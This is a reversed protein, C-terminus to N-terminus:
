PIALSNLLRNMAAKDDGDINPNGLGDLDGTLNFARDPYAVSLSNLRRNMQAKDDGDVDADGDVDGLPRLRQGVTATAVKGSTNGTYKVGITYSGSAGPNPTSTGMRGGVINYQNPGVTQITFDTVPGGNETFEVAYSEGPAAEQDLTVALVSHHRDATTTQTNQYVWDWDVAASIALTGPVPPWVPIDRQGDGDFDGARYQALNISSGIDSGNQGHGIAWSGPAPRLDLDYNTKTLWNCVVGANLLPKDLPPTFDLYNNHPWTGSASYGRGTITRVVGDFDTEIHDGVAFRDNPGDMYIRSATFSPVGFGEMGEMWAPGNIFQPDVYNSNTDQGSATKWDNFYCWNSGWAAVRAAAGPGHWYVNYDALLNRAADAGYFITPYGRYFIDNKFTYGTQGLVLMLLYSYACTCDTLSQDAAGGNFMPAGSGAVICNIFHLGTTESIMFCQGGLLLVTDRVEMNTVGYYTQINDPHGWMFHHHIYCNEVYVDSTDYSIILGDVDNRAIECKQVLVDQSNSGIAMGYGNLASICNRIILRTCGSISIGMYDNGTLVCNQITIDTSGETRSGLGWGNGASHRVEFGDITIYDQNGWSFVSGTERTGEYMHGAASASDSPWVYLRWTGGRDEIAWEGAEDLLELKNFVWYYDRDPV